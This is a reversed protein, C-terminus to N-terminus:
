LYSYQWSAPNDGLYHARVADTSSDGCFQPSGWVFYRYQGLRKAFNSDQGNEESLQQKGISIGLGRCDANSIASDKLSLVAGGVTNGFPSSGGGYLQYCVISSDASGFKVKVGWEKIPMSGSQSPCEKPISAYPDATNPNSASPQVPQGSVTPETYHTGNKGVCVRPYTQLMNSGPSKECDYFNVIKAPSAIKENAALNLNKNAVQNSHWVYYGTGGIIGVGIFILLGEVATFGKQSFKRV